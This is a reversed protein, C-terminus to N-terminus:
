SEGTVGLYNTPGTPGSDCVNSSLTTNTPGTNPGCQSSQKDFSITGGLIRHPHTLSSLQFKKLSLKQSNEINKM